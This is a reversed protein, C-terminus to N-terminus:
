RLVGRRRMRVAYLLLGIALAWILATMGWNMPTNMGDPLGTAIQYVQTGALGVLSLAFAVTAWSSRALLLLSGLAGFGVGMAWAVVTWAPFADLYDVMDAPLQAIYASHRVNTMLFDFCGFANWLLSLGGVIWLHAPARIRAERVRGKSVSGKDRPAPPPMAAADM